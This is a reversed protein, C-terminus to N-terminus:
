INMDNRRPHCLFADLLLKIIAILQSQRTDKADAIHLLFL